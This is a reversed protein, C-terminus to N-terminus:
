DFRRVPIPVLIFYLKREGIEGVQYIFGARIFYAQGLGAEELTIAAKAKGTLFLASGGKKEFIISSNPNLIGVQLEQPQVSKGSAMAEADAAPPPLYNNASFSLCIFGVVCGNLKIWYIIVRSYAGLLTSCTVVM